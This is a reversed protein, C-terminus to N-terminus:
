TDKSKEQPFARGVPLAKKTQLTLRSSKGADRTVDARLQNKAPSTM